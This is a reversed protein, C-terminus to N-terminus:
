LLLAPLIGFIAYFRVQTIRLFSFCDHIMIGSVADTSDIPLDPHTDLLSKVGELDGLLLVFRACSLM